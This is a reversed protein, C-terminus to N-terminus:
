LPMKKMIMMYGKNSSLHTKPPKMMLCRQKKIKNVIMRWRFKNKVNIRNKNVNKSKPPFSVPNTKLKKKRNCKM